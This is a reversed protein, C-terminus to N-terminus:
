FAMPWIRDGLGPAGDLNGLWDAEEKVKASEAICKNEFQKLMSIDRATPVACSQWRARESAASARLQEQQLQQM